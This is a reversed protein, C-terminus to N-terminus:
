QNGIGKLQGEENSCNAPNEVSTCRLPQDRVLNTERKNNHCKEYKQFHKWWKFGTQKQTLLDYKMKKILLGHSREVKGQSQPHYPRNKTMEIKRKKVFSKSKVTFNNEEIM